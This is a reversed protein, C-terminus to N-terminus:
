GPPELLAAWAPCAPLVPVVPLVACKLSTCLVHSSVCDVVAAWWVLVVFWGLACSMAVVLSVAVIKYAGRGRVLRTGHWTSGDQIVAAMVAPVLHTFTLVRVVAM